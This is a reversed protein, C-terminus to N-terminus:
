SAELRTTLRLIAQAVLAASDVTLFVGNVAIRPLCDGAGRFLHVTTTENAEDPVNLVAIRESQHSGPRDPDEVDHDTACWSPCEIDRRSMGREYDRGLEFATRERDQGPTTVCEETARTSVDSM